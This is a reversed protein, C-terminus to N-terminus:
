VAPISAAVGTVSLAIGGRHMETFLAKYLDSETDDHIGFDDIWFKVVYRQYLPTAGVLWVKVPPDALIIPVRAVAAVVAAEMQDPATELTCLVEINRSTRKEQASFNQVRAKAIISNPIVVIDGSFTRLHTSRWGMFVVQGEVGDVLLWETERFSRDLSLALGAFLNGLTDQLALGLVVTIVTSTALIPALNVGTVNGVISLAAVTYLIVLLLHRVVNPIAIKKREHLWYDLLATEFAEIILYALLLLETISVAKSVTDNQVERLAFFTHAGVLFVLVQAPFRMRKVLVDDLGTSTMGAARQLWRFSIRYMVELSIVVLLSILLASFLAMPLQFTEDLWTRLREM